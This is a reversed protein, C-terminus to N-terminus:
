ASRGSENRPHSSSSSAAPVVTTLEVVSSRHFMCLSYRASRAARPTDTRRIGPDIQNRDLTLEVQHLQLQDLGFQEELQCRLGGVSECVEEHRSLAPVSM